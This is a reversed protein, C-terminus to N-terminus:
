LAGEIKFYIRQDRTSTEGVTEGMGQTYTGAYARLLKSQFYIGATQFGQNLGGSIGLCDFLLYDVGFHTRKYINKEDNALIDRFNAEVTLPYVIRRMASWGVNVTQQLTDLPLEATVDDKDKFQTDGLDDVTLAVTSEVQSLPLLYSLGVGISLATGSNKVENFKMGKIDTIESLDKQLFYQTRKIVKPSVGVELGNLLTLHGGGVLALNQNVNFRVTDLGSAQVNKFASVDAFVSGLFGVSWNRTILGSYTSVGLHRNEGAMKRLGDIVVANESSKFYKATAPLQRSVDITPSLLVIEFASDKSLPQALAPNYFIADASKATNVGV